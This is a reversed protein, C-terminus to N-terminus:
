EVRRRGLHVESGRHSSAARRLRTLGRLERARAGLDAYPDAFRYRLARTRGSVEILSSARLQNLYRRVTQEGRRPLWTTALALPFWSGHEIARDLLHRAVPDLSVAVDHARFWAVAEAYAGEIAESMYDLLPIYDGSADTWSLVNYYAEPFRLTEVEVAARYACPLGHGQLYAHLLVRGTRGNGELFPHISEFEHFFVSGAIVPHLGRAPGRVWHLLSELEIAVQEPPCPIFLEEGRDSYVAGAVARLRGPRASPDVGTLLERHLRRISDVTWAGGLADPLLWAGLQNLVERGPPSTRARGTGALSERTIRQVEALALPNGELSVSSHLNSAVVDQIRREFDPAPVVLQSLKRDLTTIRNLRGELEPLVDVAVAFPVKRRHRVPIPARFQAYKAPDLTM